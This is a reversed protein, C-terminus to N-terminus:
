PLIPRWDPDFDFAPDTTVPTREAGNSTMVYIDHNVGDPWSELALWFGDPSYDAKRMPINGAGQYVRFETAAGDPFRAAYLRPVGNETESQTFVIVQGDPSVVPYTDKKGGSSSFRLPSSGDANMIWVQYPGNRTTVFVIQGGDVSWSPQLDRKDGASLREVSRDALHMIFIQPIGRERVSTFIIDEGDPSWSPDFDGGGITPL